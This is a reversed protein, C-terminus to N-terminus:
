GKARVLVPKSSYRAPFMAKLAAVKPLDHFRIYPYDPKRVLFDQHYAEAPYFGRLAEVKTVIPKKWVGSAGLQAIYREAAIKQEPTTPFIATRYQTGHDPGQYNLTTPDAVVSFFIQMLTGYSVQSPDYSVKVAEAHGTAGSSVEEYTATQRTGGAYGSVARTVGKVHQFVGQVGWFCGGAFVATATGPQAAVDAAPPPVRVAPEASVESSRMAVVGGVGFLLAAALVASVLRRAKGAM